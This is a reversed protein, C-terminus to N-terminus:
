DASCTFLSLGPAKFLRPFLLPFVISFEFRSVHMQMRLGGMCMTHMQPQPILIYGRRDLTVIEQVM